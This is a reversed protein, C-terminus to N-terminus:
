DQRADIRGRTKRPSWNIRLEGAVGWDCGPDALSFDPIVYLLERIAAEVELRALNSGLCRHPGAGFAIHRNGKREIDFISPNSFVKPDRNAAAFLLLIKEGASVHRGHVNVSQTATRALGTVPAYFRLCEETFGTIASPNAVLYERDSPVKALHLIAARIAFATNELGAILLFFCQNLIEDETYPRGEVSGTLLVSIVDKGGPAAQRARIAGRFLDLIKASVEKAESEREPVLRGYVLIDVWEWFEPDEQIGLLGTILEMPLPKALLAYIDASGTAEFNAILKQALTRVIPELASIAAPKFLPLLLRRFEDHEPPDSEMPLLPPAGHLPPLLVGAASSFIDRHRTVEQIDSFTSAIWHGGWQESHGFPCEAHMRAYTEGCSRRMATSNADFSRIWDPDDLDREGQDDTAM